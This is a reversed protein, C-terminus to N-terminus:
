FIRTVALTAYDRNNTHVADVGPKGAIYKKLMNM